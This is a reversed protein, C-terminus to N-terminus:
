WNGRYIFNLRELNMKFLDSPGAQPNRFTLPHRRYPLLVARMTHLLAFHELDIKDNKDVRKKMIRIKRMWEVYGNQMCWRISRGTMAMFVREANLGNQLALNKDIIGKNKELEVLLYEYGTSYRYKESEEIKSYLQPKNEKPVERKPEDKKPQLGLTSKETKKGSFDTKEM